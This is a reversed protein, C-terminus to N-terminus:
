FYPTRHCTVAKGEVREAGAAVQILVLIGGSRMVQIWGWKLKKENRRNEAREGRRQTLQFPKSGGENVGSKLGTDWGGRLNKLRKLPKGWM